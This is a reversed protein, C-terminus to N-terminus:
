AAGGEGKHADDDPKPGPPPPDGQKPPGPEPKPEPAAAIAALEATAAEENPYIGAEVVARVVSKWKLNVESVLRQHKQLPDEIAPRPLPNVRARLGALSAGDDRHARVVDLLIALPGDEELRRAVPMQEAIRTDHTLNEIMMAVGSQPNGSAKQVYAHPSNGRSTALERLDADRQSMFADLKPNPSLLGVEHGSAVRFLADPGIKQEKADSSQDDTWIQDHGQLGTVFSANARQVNLDDVNDLLDLDDVLFTYGEPRGFQMLFVPLISGKLPTPTASESAQEGATSILVSSWEGWKGTIDEPPLRSWVRYWDAKSDPDPSAQQIAVIYKHKWSTPASWHCIVEVQHPWYLDVHPFGEGGDPDDIWTITGVVCGPTILMRRECEQMMSHFESKELAWKLLDSRPDDAKLRARKEDVLYRDSEVVYTGADLRALMRLWNIPNPVMGKTGPFRAAIAAKVLDKQRGRYRLQAGLSAVDLAPDKRRRAARLVTELESETWKKAGDAIAKLMAKTESNEFLM